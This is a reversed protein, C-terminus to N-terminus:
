GLDLESRRFKSELFRGQDALSRAEGQFVAEAIRSLETQLIDLQSVLEEHATRRGEVRRQMAFGRPLNLYAELSTPVYDRITRGVVHLAEPQGALQDGRALIEEITSILARTRMQIEGPLRGGYKRVRTRLHDLDRRLQGVEVDGYGVHLDAKSRGALLAGIGYTGAVAIPWLFGLGSTGAAVLALHLGLTALAALGGVINARSSLYRM